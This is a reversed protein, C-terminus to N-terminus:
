ALKIYVVFSTAANLARSVLTFAEELSFKREPTNKTQAPKSLGACM